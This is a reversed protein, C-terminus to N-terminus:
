IGQGRLGLDGGGFGWFQPSQYHPYSPSKSIGKDGWLQPSLPPSFQTTMDALGVNIM